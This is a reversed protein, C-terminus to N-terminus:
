DGMTLRGGNRPDNKIQLLRLIPTQWEYNLGDPSFTVNFMMKQILNSKNEPNAVKFAQAPNALLEALRELSKIRAM